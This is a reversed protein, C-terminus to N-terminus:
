TSDFAFRKKEYKKEKKSKSRIRRHSKPSILNRKFLFWKQMQFAFFINMTFADVSFRM